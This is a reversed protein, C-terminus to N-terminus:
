IQDSPIAIGKALLLRPTTMAVRCCLSVGADRHLWLRSLLPPDRCRTCVSKTESCRMCVNHAFCAMAIQELVIANDPTFWYLYTFPLPSEDYMCKQCRMAAGLTFQLSSDRCRMCVNNTQSSKTLLAIHELYVLVPIDPIFGQMNVYNVQNDNCLRFQWPSHLCRMCVNKAGLTFRLPSDRYRM